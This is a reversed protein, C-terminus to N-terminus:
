PSVGAPLAVCISFLRVWLLQPEALRFQSNLLWVLLAFYVYSLFKRYLYAHCLWCGINFVFWAFILVGVGLWIWWDANLNLHEANCGFPDHAQGCSAFWHM